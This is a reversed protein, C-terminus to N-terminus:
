FEIKRETIPYIIDDVEKNREKEHDITINKLLCSSIESEGGTQYIFYVAVNDMNIFTKTETFTITDKSIGISIPIICEESSFAKIYIPRFLNKTIYLLTSNDYPDREQKWACTLRHLNHFLVKVDDKIYTLFARLQITYKDKIKSRPSHLDKM